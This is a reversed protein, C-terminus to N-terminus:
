QGVKKLHEIAAHGLSITRSQALNTNTGRADLGTLSAIVTVNEMSIILVINAMYIVGGISSETTYMKTPYPFDKLAQGNKLHTAIIESASKAGSSDPFIGYFVVGRSPTKWVDTLVSDEILINVAGIEKFAKGTADIESASISGSSMGQPLINPSIPNTLLARLLEDPKKSFSKKKEINPASNEKTPTPTEKKQQQLPRDNGQPFQPAKDTIGAPAQPSSSPKKTCDIFGLGGGIVAASLLVSRGVNLINKGLDKPSTPKIIEKGM